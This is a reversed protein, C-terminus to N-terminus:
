VFEAEQDKETLYSRQEGISSSTVSQVQPVKLEREILMPSWYKELLVSSSRCLAVSVERCSIVQGICCLIM